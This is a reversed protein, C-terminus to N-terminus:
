VLLFVKQTLETPAWGFIRQAKLTKISFEVAKATIASMIGQKWYDKDLGYGFLLDNKRAGFPRYPLFDNEAKAIQFHGILKNDKKLCIALDLINVNDNDVDSGNRNVMALIAKDRFVDHSVAENSKDQLIRSLDAFDGPTLRRVYTTETEFVRGLSSENKSSDITTLDNGLTTAFSSPALLFSYLLVTIISLNYKM